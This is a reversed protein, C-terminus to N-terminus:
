AEAKREACAIHPGWITWLRYVEPADEGAVRPVSPVQNRAEYDQWHHRGRHGRSHGGTRAQTKPQTPVQWCLSTHDQISEGTSFSSGDSHTRISLQTLFVTPTVYM